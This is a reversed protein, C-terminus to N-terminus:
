ALRSLGDGLTHRDHSEVVLAIEADSTRASPQSVLRCVSTGSSASEYRAAWDRAARERAPAAFPYRAVPPQMGIRWPKPSLRARFCAQARCLRVYMPDCGLAELVRRTEDSEPDHTRSTEILRLGAATRYIRFEWGRNAAAWDTVRRLSAAEPSPGQPEPPATRGRGFLRAVFGGLSGAAGPPPATDPLDIDVFMVRSANLVLAGYANRTVVAVPDGGRPSMDSVIEERLPRGEGYAYRDPFPEGWAVRQAVREAAETARQQAEDQSHTSWGLCEAEQVNGKPGRVAAKGRVWYRAIIM